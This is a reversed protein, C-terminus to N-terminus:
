ANALAAAVFPSLFEAMPITIHTEDRLVLINGVIAPCTDATCFWDTTDVFTMDNQQAATFEASIFDPRVADERTMSCESADDLHASLCVPVEEANAPNDGLVVIPGDTAVPSASAAPALAVSGLAAFGAIALTAGIRRIPSLSTTM